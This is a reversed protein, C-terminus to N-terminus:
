IKKNIKESAIKSTKGIKNKSPNILQCSPMSRFNGKHDKLTIYVPAEALKEIRDSLKLNTAISKKGLNISKQLKEPPKKYIKTVSEKM